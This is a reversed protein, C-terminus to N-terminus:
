KEDSDPAESFVTMASGDDTDFDDCIRLKERDLAENLRAAEVPFPMCVTMVPVFMVPAQMYFPEACLLLSAAPGDVQRQEVKPAAVQLAPMLESEGHAFRCVQGYGCKGKQWAYCIATKYVLTSSRLQRCGHAFRCHKDQCKGRFFDVCVKTNTFDPAAAVEDYSHAFTCSDGRRCRGSQFFSCLQTKWMGQEVVPAM